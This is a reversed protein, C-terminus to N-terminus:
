DISRGCHPCSAQVRGGTRAAAGHDAHATRAKGLEDVFAAGLLGAPLAFMGIGLIAIFGGLVRGAPTVPTMDGYGITTLTVIGWWMTAPISSFVNPQAEYELHYMAASSVILAIVLMFLLSLLDPAKAVLVRQLTQVAISFRTLKAIRVLRALRLMRLVRLDLDGLALLSPLVALLDVIAGPTIMWRLRGAVPRAFQLREPATWLRTLYEAGFVVVSFVELGHFWQPWRSAVGPISELVIALVNVVILAALALRLARAGPTPHDGALVLHARHRLSVPPCRLSTTTTTRRREPDSPQRM